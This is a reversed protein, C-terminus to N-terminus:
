PRVRLWDGGGFYGGVGTNGSPFIMNTITENTQLPASTPGDLVLAYSPNHIASASFVITDHDFTFDHAIFSNGATMNYWSFTGLGLLEASCGTGCTLPDWLDDYVNDHASFTNGATALGGADSAVNEVQYIQAESTGYNYRIITNIM